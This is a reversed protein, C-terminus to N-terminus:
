CDAYALATFQPSWETNGDDAAEDKALHQRQVGCWHNIQIDVVEPKPTLPEPPGAM